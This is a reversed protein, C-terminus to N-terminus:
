RFLHLPGIRGANSIRAPLIAQKVVLAYRIL